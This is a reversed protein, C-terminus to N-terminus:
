LSEKKLDKILRNLLKKYKKKDSNCNTADAIVKKLIDAKYENTWNEFIYNDTRIPLLVNIDGDFKGKMKMEFRKSELQIAREIERNVAPSKLSSKSAILIFKNHNRIADDIESWLTSGFKADHSWEWCRIGARELDKRLQLSFEKDDSSYSVFCTYSSTPKSISMDAVFDAFFRFIDDGLTYAKRCKRYQKSAEEFYGLAWLAKAKGILPAKKEDISDFLVLASKYDKAKMFKEAKTYSDDFGDYKNQLKNKKM